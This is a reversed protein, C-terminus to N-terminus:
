IPFEQVRLNSPWESPDAGAPHAYAVPVGNFLPRSGAQKIFVACETFQCQKVTEMAWLWEFPRAEPGGAQQSEGGAIIWDLKAGTTGSYMSTARHGDLANMYLRHDGDRHGHTTKYQLKNWEIPGLSPEWSVGHVTAPIELLKIVDRDAEAQDVVTAILWVNKPLGGPPMMNKANGIRKTVILWTLNPTDAILRWLDDRWETPVENDFVDALSACFVPWFGKRGAFESNPAERNWKRPQNWNQVSTRYRPAGPGWHKIPIEKSGGGLTRSFRRDDLAEAYCSDCGPGVKTCGIWCNFTSRCWTIASEEAM